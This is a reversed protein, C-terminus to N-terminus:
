SVALAFILLGLRVVDPLPLKPCVSIAMVIMPLAVATSGAWVALLAMASGFLVLTWGLFLLAQQWRTPPEPNPQIQQQPPTATKM